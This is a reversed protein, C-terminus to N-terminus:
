AHRKRLYAKLDDVNWILIGLGQRPRKGSFQKRLETVIENNVSEPIRWQYSFARQSMHALSQEIDVHYTAVHTRKSPAVLNELDHEPKGRRSGEYGYKELLRTYAERMPNAREHITSVMIDTTVRCIEQLAMKWEPILHLVANCIAAEFSSDKFPIFCLDGRFLNAVGKEKAVGLMKQSLDIGVVEFETGQLPKAFRGTGVGADLITKYRM